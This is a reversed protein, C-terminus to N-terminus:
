PPAYERFPHCHPLPIASLTPLHLRYLLDQSHAHQLAVFAELGGRWLRDLKCEEDLLRIEFTSKQTEEIGSMTAKAKIWQLGAGDFIWFGEGLGLLVEAVLELLTGTSASGADSPAALLSLQHWSTIPSPTVVIWPAWTQLSSTTPVWPMYESQGVITLMSM